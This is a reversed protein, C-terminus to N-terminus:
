KIALKSTDIRTTNKLDPNQQMTLDILKINIDGLFAEYKKSIYHIM